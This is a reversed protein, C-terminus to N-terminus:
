ATATARTSIGYTAIVRRLNPNSHQVIGMCNDLWVDDFTGVTTSQTLARMMWAHAQHYLSWADARTAGYCQLDVMMTETVLSGSLGQGSTVAQVLVLPLTMSPNPTSTGFTTDTETRINVGAMNPKLWSIVLAEPDPWTDAGGTQYPLNM